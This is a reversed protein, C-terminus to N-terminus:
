RREALVWALALAPLIVLNKALGGLPELWLAPLLLGFAATYTLVSTAMLAIAWRPQWGSALWGALLIDLIGTTRALATLPWGQMASGQALAEITAVPAFWGALASLLWLTVISFRLLPALFYLQAQWRDQVQSPQTALMEELGRPVRGFDRLLRPCADIDTVNGRRLM